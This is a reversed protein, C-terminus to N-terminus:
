LVEKGIIDSYRIILIIAKSAAHCLALLYGQKCSSLCLEGHMLSSAAVRPFAPCARQQEPTQSLPDTVRIGPRHGGPLTLREEGPAGLASPCTGPSCCGLFSSGSCGEGPKVPLFNFSPVPYLWCSGTARIFMENWSIKNDCFCFGLSCERCFKTSNLFSPHWSVQNLSPSCWPIKKNSFLSQVPGNYIDLQLFFECRESM